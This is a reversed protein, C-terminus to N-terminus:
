RAWRRAAPATRRPRPLEDRGRHVRRGVDLRALQVMCRSWRTPCCTGACCGAALRRRHRARGRRVADRPHHLVSTRALRGFVPLEVAMIVFVITRLGPGVFATLAIALILAPFALVLDFVGSRSWTPSPGGADLGARGPHRRLAGIPVAVFVVILDVRIGYLTGPSSTATSRTPAWGTPAASPGVLNAGPIQETPRTRRSCRRWCGSRGRRCRGPGARGAGQRAAARDLHGAPAPPRVPRRALDGGAGRHRDLSESM